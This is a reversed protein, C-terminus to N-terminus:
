IYSALSILRVKPFNEYRENNIYEALLNQVLNLFKKLFINMRSIVFYNRTFPEEEKIIM